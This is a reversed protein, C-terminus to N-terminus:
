YFQRTCWFGDEIYYVLKTGLLKSLETTSVYFLRFSCSFHQLKNRNIHLCKKPLMVHMSHYFPHRMGYLIFANFTVSQLVYRFHTSCYQANAPSHLFSVTSGHARMGIQWFCDHFNWVITNFHIIGMAWFRSCCPECVKIVEQMHFDMVLFPQNFKMYSHCICM